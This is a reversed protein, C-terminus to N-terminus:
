RMIVHKLRFFILMGKGPGRSKVIKAETTQLQACDHFTKRM